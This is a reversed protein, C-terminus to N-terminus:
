LTVTISSYTGTELDPTATNNEPEEKEETNTENRSIEIAQTWTDRLGSLLRCVEDLPEPDNDRNSHMLRKIMYGYLDRLEDALEANKSPDLTAAFHAIISTAKNIFYARKDLTNEEIAQRAQKLFRIAGDYLMLMLQEKSATQVANAFYQNTYTNM